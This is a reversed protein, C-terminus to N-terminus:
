QIFTPVSAAAVVVKVKEMRVMGGLKLQLRGKKKKMLSFVVPAM